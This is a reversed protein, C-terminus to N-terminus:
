EWGKLSRNLAEKIEAATGQVLYEQKGQMIIKACAPIPKDTPEGWWYERQHAEGYADSFHEVCDVRAPQVAVPTRGKPDIMWRTFEVLATPKAKPTM